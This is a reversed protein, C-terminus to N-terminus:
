SREGRLWRQHYHAIRTLGYVAGQHMVDAREGTFRQSRTFVTFPEGAFAWAYCFTGPAIGAEPGPGAVGTTAIAVTASSDKLAGLAMEWAVAESTLGYREITLPSVGLLRQKASPSYVVYGSELVEGTGPAEALLAAMFGATCSEATTLLLGHQKLYDLTALVADKPM